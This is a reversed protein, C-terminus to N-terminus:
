YVPSGKPPPAYDQGFKNKHGATLAQGSDVLRISAVAAPTGSVVIDRPYDSANEPRFREHWVSLQYRGAPVSPISFAGTRSTTAYYPSDVVIVVASMDPHINCFIYCVGARPFTVSRSSGGEYLGLDFRKGDFLSFVNHFFPDLNPFDVTAGVPVVVVHPDFRKDQQAITVRRRAGPMAGRPAQDLPTLWVAIDGRDAVAGGKGAVTVTGTFPASQAHLRSAPPWALSALAALVVLCAGAHV